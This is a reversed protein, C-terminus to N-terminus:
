GHVFVIQKRKLLCSITCMSVLLKGMTYFPLELQEWLNGKLLGRKLVQINKLPIPNIIDGSYILKFEYNDKYLEEENILNDLATVIEYACRQVGTIPQTLFRGNLFVQKKTAIEM